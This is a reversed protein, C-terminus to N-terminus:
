LLMGKPQNFGIEEVDVGIYKFVEYCHKETIDSLLPETTRITRRM